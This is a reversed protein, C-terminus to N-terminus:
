YRYIEDEISATRRRIDTSGSLLVDAQDCIESAARLGAEVEDLNGVDSRLRLLDIRINELAANASSIRNRVRDRESEIQGVAVLRRELMAAERRMEPHERMEELRQLEEETAGSGAEALTRDLVNERERLNGIKQELARIIQRAEHLQARQDSNLTQFVDVVPLAGSEVENDDAITNPSSGELQQSRVADLRVAWPSPESVSSVSAAEPEGSLASIFDEATAFRDAREKALCRDVANVVCAPLDPRVTAVSPSPELLHKVLLEPVTPADFPLEGTLSYFATVGLSYLDTRSDVTDGAMQEPSMYQATGMIEGIGTITQAGAARAIGFDTVVARGSMSDLLVNDAKVDRHVVGNVHAYGLASAIESMLRVAEPLPLPGCEKVVQRLTEGPVYSMVFFVFNDHEEIAHIPVINPHALRAATRAERLLRERLDSDAAKDSPLVKLAVPRDLVLDWALYVIGMGGKGIRREVAYRDTVAEQLELLQNDAKSSMRNTYGERADGGSESAPERQNGSVNWVHVVENDAAEREIQTVEAVM